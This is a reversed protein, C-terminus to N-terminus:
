PSGRRFCRTRAWRSRSRSRDFGGLRDDPAAPAARDRADRQQGDDPASRCRRDVPARRRARAASRRIGGSSRRRTARRGADLELPDSPPGVFTPSCRIPRRFETASDRRSSCGRRSAPTRRRRCPSRERASSRRAADRELTTQYVFQEPALVASAFASSRPTNDSPKCTPAEPPAFRRRARCRLCVVNRARAVSTTWSTSDWSFTARSRATRRGLCAPQTCNTSSARRVAM